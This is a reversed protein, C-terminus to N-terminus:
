DTGEDDAEVRDDIITFVEPNNPVVINFGNPKRLVYRDFKPTRMMGQLYRSEMAQERNGQFYYKIVDELNPKKNAPFIFILTGVLTRDVRRCQIIM